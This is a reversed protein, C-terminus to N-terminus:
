ALGFLGVPQFRLQDRIQNYDFWYHYFFRGPLQPPKKNGATKSRDM